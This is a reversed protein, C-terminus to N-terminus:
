GKRRESQWKMVIVEGGERLRDVARDDLVSEKIQDGTMNSILLTPMDASYRDCLIESLILRDDESCRGAGLEDVVLVDADIFKDMVAQETQEKTKWSDRISRILRTATSYVPKCDKKLAMEGIVGAALMTKGTGCNGILLMRTVEGAIFRRASDKVAVHDSTREIWEDLTIGCFKDPMGCEGWRAALIAQRRAEREKDAELEDTEHQCVPCIMWERRTEYDGHEECNATILPGFKEDLHRLINSQMEVAPEM